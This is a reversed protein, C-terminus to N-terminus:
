DLRELTTMACLQAVAAVNVPNHSVDLVRLPLQVLSSVDSIQNHAVRLETLEALHDLAVSTLRSHELVLGRIAHLHPSALIQAIRPAGFYTDRLGFTHLRELFVMTELRGLQETPETIVLRRVPESTFLRAAIAINTAHIEVDEMFGGRFEVNWRPGRFGIWSTWTRGYHDLLEHERSRLEPPASALLDDLKYQTVILEGRAHLEPETRVLLYDAYVLRPGRDEPAALVADLLSRETASVLPREPYVGLKDDLRAM